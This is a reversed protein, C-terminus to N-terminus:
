RCDAAVLREVRVEFEARFRACATTRVWRPIGFANYAGALDAVVLAIWHLRERIPQPTKRSEYKRLSTEAVGVLRGQRGLTVSQM